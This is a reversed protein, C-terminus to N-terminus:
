PRLKCYTTFDGWYATYGSDQFIVRWHRRNDNSDVETRVPVLTTGALTRTTPCRQVVAFQWHFSIGVKLGLTVTWWWGDGDITTRTMTAGKSFDLAGLEPIDGCISLVQDAHHTIYHINFQLLAPIRGCPDVLDFTLKYINPGQCLCCFSYGCSCSVLNCGGVDYQIPRNCRPCGRTNNAIWQASLADEELVRKQKKAEPEHVFLKKSIDECRSGPHYQLSCRACFHFGCEGCIAEDCVVLGGYSCRPCRVFDSMISLTEQLLREEFAAKNRVSALIDYYSALSLCGRRPCRPHTSMNNKFWQDLCNLCFAHSCRSLSLLLGEELCIGCLGKTPPLPTPESLENFIQVQSEKPYQMLCQSSCHTGLPLAKIPPHDTFLICASNMLFQVLQPNSNKIAYDIPTMEPLDDHAKCHIRCDAGSEVLLKCIEPFNGAAAAHLPTEGYPPVVVQAKVGRKLLTLVGEICGHECLLYLVSPPIALFSTTPVFGAPPTRFQSPDIDCLPAARAFRTFQVSDLGGSALCLAAYDLCSPKTKWTVPHASENRMCGWREKFDRACLGELADDTTNDLLLHLLPVASHKTPADSLARVLAPSLQRCFSFQSYPSGMCRKPALVSSAGFRLLLEVAQPYHDVASALARCDNPNVGSLLLLEAPEVGWELACLLLSKKGFLKPLVIGRLDLPLVIPETDAPRTTVKTSCNSLGPLTTHSRIERDTQTVLAKLLAINRRVLSAELAVLQTCGNSISLASRPMRGSNRIENLIGDIFNWTTYRFIMTIQEQPVTQRAVKPNKIQWEYPVDAPILIPPQRLPLPDGYDDSIEKVDLLKYPSLMSKDPVAHFLRGLDSVVLTGNTYCQIGLELCSVPCVWRSVNDLQMFRQLDKMSTRSIIWKLILTVQTHSQASPLSDAAIKLARHLAPSKNELAPCENVTSAGAHLLSLVSDTDTGDVALALACGDDPDAGAQLLLELARNCWMMAAVVPRQGRGVDPMNIGRLSVPLSVGVVGTPGRVPVDVAVAWAASANSRSNGVNEGSGNASGGETRTALMAELCRTARKELSLTVCAWLPSGRWRSYRESYADVEWDWDWDVCSNHTCDSAAPPAVGPLNAPDWSPDCGLSRAVTHVLGRHDDASVLGVLRRLTRPRM